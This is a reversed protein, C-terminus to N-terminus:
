SDVAAIRLDDELCPPDMTDTGVPDEFVVIAAGGNAKAAKARYMATDARRLLEEAPCGVSSALPNIAVGAAATVGVTQTPLRLPTALAALWRDVITTIHSTTPLDNLLVVFEDGGYRCVIDDARMQATLQKAVHVLLQDGVEHGLSDNIDKFGNLDLFVVAFGHGPRRKATEVTEKLRELFLTRNPLGTLADYLADHRLKEELRKRESIDTMSGVLRTL